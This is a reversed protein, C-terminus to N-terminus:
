LPSITDKIFDLYRVNPVFIFKRNLASSIWPNSIFCACEKNCVRGEIVKTISFSGLLGQKLENLSSKSEGVLTSKRMSGNNDILFENTEHYDEKARAQRGLAELIAINKPFHSPSNTEINVTLRDDPCRVSYRYDKRKIFTKICNHCYTHGCMTLLRPPNGETYQGKCLPCKFEEM